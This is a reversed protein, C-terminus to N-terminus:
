KTDSDEIIKKELRMLRSSFNGKTSDKLEYKIALECVKIAEAYKGQKEYIIALREFSPIRLDFQINKAKERHKRKEEKNYFDSKALKLYGEKENVIWAKKFKPFLAIDAKCYEICKNLCYIGTERQKYNLEILQNYVFHLDIINTNLELAMNLLKDALMYKKDSIAWLSYTSLWDSASLSCNMEINASDVANRNKQAGFSLGQASCDKIFSRDEASLTDWWDELNYHAILGGYKKRM